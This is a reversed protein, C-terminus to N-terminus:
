LTSVTCAVVSVFITVPPVTYSMLRRHGYVQLDVFVLRPCSPTPGKAARLLFLKLYFQEEVLRDLRPHALAFGFIYSLDILSPQRDM